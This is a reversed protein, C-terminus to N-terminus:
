VDAPGLDFPVGDWDAPPRGECWEGAEDETLYESIVGWHEAFYWQWHGHLWIPRMREADEDHGQLGMTSWCSPDPAPFEPEREPEPEYPHTDAGGRAHPRHDGM